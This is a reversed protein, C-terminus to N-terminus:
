PALGAARAFPLNRLVGFVLVIGLGCWFWFRTHTGLPSQVKFLARGAFFGLL